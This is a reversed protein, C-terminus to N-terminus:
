SELAAYLTTRSIGFETAVDKKSVNDALRAKIKVLLDDNIKKKAGVQKGQAKAAAIGERQREKILSREFESIAGLLQLMLKNMPTDEGTFELNEKHFKVAVGRQTLGKVLGQLDALNRALRDISHVHLTDGERLYSLCEQLKPRQMDKASVKEEFTRDLKVGMLQRLTNQGVSSVRIYGVDSM